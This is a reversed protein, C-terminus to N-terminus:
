YIIDCMAPFLAVLSYITTQNQPEAESALLIILNYIMSLSNIELGSHFCSITKTDALLLLMACLRQLDNNPQTFSYRGYSPRVIVQLHHLTTEM